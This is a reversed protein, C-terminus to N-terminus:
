QMSPGSGAIFEEIKGQLEQLTFPKLIYDNCGAEICSKLDSKIFLATAAVIPIDKTEPNSRIIRTAEIGDMEPMLIDMLILHPKEEFAKQVGERGHKAPIVAFGMSEIQRTLVERIDPHDEVLLVRKMRSWDKATNTVM